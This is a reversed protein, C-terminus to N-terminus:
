SLRGSASRWHHKKCKPCEIIHRNDVDGQFGCNCNLRLTDWSQTDLHNSHGVDSRAKEQVNSRTHPSSTKKSDGVDGQSMELKKSKVANTLNRELAQKKKIAAELELLENKRDAILKDLRLKKLELDRVEAELNEDYNATDYLLAINEPPSDKFHPITDASVRGQGLLLWCEHLPWPHGLADFM